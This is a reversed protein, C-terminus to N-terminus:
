ISGTANNNLYPALCPFIANYLSIRTDLNLSNLSHRFLLCDSVPM